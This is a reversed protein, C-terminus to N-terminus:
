SPLHTQTPSLGMKFNYPGKITKLKNEKHENKGMKGM